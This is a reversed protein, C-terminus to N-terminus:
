NIDNIYIKKKRQYFGCIKVAEDGNSYIYIDTEKREKEIRYRLESETKFDLGKAKRKEERKILKELKKNEYYTLGNEELKYINDSDLIKQFLFISPILNALILLFLLVTGNKKFLLSMPALFGLIFSSILISCIILATGGKIIFWLEGKKAKKRLNIISFICLTISPIFSIYAITNENVVM